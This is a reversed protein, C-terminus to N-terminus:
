FVQVSYLLNVDHYRDFQSQLTSIDTEVDSEMKERIIHVFYNSLEDLQHETVHKAKSHKVSSLFVQYISHSRYNRANIVDM